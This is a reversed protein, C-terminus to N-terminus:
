NHTNNEHASASSSAAGPAPSPRAAGALITDLASCTEFIHELDAEMPLEYTEPRALMGVNRREFGAALLFESGGRSALVKEKLTKNDAKLARFKPETPDKLINRLIKLLTEFALQAHAADSAITTLAKRQMAQRAVPDIAAAPKPGAHTAVLQRLSDPSAGRAMGVEQGHRFIKFTPMASIGCAQSTEQNQDVDVKLFECWPYEAALAEFHPAIMRCPGCWTATFEVVVARDGAAALVADFDAKTAPQRM